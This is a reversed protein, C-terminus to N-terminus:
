DFLDDSDEEDLIRRRLKEYYAKVNNYEQMMFFDDSEVLRRVNPFKEPHQRVASIPLEVGMYVDNGSPDCPVSLETYIEKNLAEISIDVDGSCIVRDFLDQKILNHIKEYLFPKSYGSPPCDLKTACDYYLYGFVSELFSWYAERSKGALLKELYPMFIFREVKSPIM